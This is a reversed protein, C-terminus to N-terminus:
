SFRNTRYKQTTTAAAHVGSKKMVQRSRLPWADPTFLAYANPAHARKSQKM